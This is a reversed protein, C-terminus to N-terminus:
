QKKGRDCAESRTMADLLAELEPRCTGCGTCVGIVQRLQDVTGCGGAIAAVVAQRRIGTCHCHTFDAADVM